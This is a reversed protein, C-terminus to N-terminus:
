EKDIKDIVNKLMNANSSPAESPKGQEFLKKRDVKPPEPPKPRLDIVTNKANGDLLMEYDIYYNEPHNLDILVDVTRSESYKLGPISDGELHLIRGDSMQLDVIPRIFHHEGITIETDEMQYPVGKFLTGIRALKNIKSIFISKKIFLILGIVIVVIGAILGIYIWFPIVLDVETECVKPNNSYFYVKDLDRDVTSSSTKAECSYVVDKYTFSYIPHCSEDGSKDISCNPEISSAKVKMDYRNIKRNSDILLYLFVSFVIIGLLLILFYTNRNKKYRNMNVVVM